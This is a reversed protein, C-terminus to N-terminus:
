LLFDGALNKFDSDLETDQREQYYERDQVDFSRYLLYQGNNKEFSVRTQPIIDVTVMYHIGTVIKSFAEM